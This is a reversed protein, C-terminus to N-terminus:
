EPDFNGWNETRKSRNNLGVLYELLEKKEKKLYESRDVLKNFMRRLRDESFGQYVIAESFCTWSSWDLHKQQIRKFRREISKM